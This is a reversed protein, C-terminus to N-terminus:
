FHGTITGMLKVEGSKDYSGKADVSFDEFGRPRFGASVSGSEYKGNTINALLNFQV